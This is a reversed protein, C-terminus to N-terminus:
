PFDRDNLGRRREHHLPRSNLHHYHEYHNLDLDITHTLVLTRERYIATTSLRNYPIIIGM